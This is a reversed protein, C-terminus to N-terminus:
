EVKECHEWMFDFLKKLGDSVEKSKLVFLTPDEKLKGHKEGSYIVVQDGFFDVSMKSCYKKPLIRFESNELKLLDPTNKEVGEDMIERLKI